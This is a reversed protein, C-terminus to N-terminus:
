FAFVDIRWMNIGVALRVKGEVICSSSDIDEAVYDPRTSDRMHSIRHVLKTVCSYLMFPPSLCHSNLVNNTSLLRRRM